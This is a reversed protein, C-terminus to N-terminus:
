NTKGFYRDITAKLGTGRTIKRSFYFGFALAIAWFGADFLPVFNAWVLPFNWAVGVFLVM